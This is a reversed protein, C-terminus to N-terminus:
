SQSEETLLRSLEKARVSASRYAGKYRNTQEEAQKLRKQQEVFRESLSVFQNQAVARTEQIQESEEEDTLHSFDSM